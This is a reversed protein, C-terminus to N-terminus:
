LSLFWPPFGAASVALLSDDHCLVKKQKQKKIGRRLSLPLPRPAPPDHCPSLWGMHSLREGHTFGLVVSKEIRKNTRGGEGEFLDETRWPTFLRGHVTPKWAQKM